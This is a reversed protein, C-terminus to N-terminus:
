RLPTLSHSPTLQLSTVYTRFYRRQVEKGRRVKGCKFKRWLDNVCRLAADGGQESSEFSATLESVLGKVDALLAFHAEDVAINTLKVSTILSACTEICEWGGSAEIAEGVGEWNVLELIFKAARSGALAVHALEIDQMVLELDEDSLTGGELGKM